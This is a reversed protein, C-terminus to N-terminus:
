QKFPSYIYSDQGIETHFIAVKLPQPLDFVFNPLRQLCMDGIDLVALKTLKKMEAPFEDISIRNSGLALWTLQNLAGLASPCVEMGNGLAKLTHLMTLRSIGEPIIKIGTFSLELSELKTLTQLPQPFQCFRCWFLSIATVNQLRSFESPFVGIDGHDLILVKLQTLTCISVPLKSDPTWLAIHALSTIQTLASYDFQEKLKDTDLHLSGLKQMLGLEHLTYPNMEKAVYKFRELQNCRHFGKANFIVTRFLELSRLSTPFTDLEIESQFESEVKLHTLTSLGRVVEKVVGWNFKGEHYRPSTIYLERLHTMKALEEVSEKSVIVHASGDSVLKIQGCSSTSM